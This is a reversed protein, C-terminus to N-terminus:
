PKRRLPTWGPPRFLYAAAESLSRAGRLDRALGPIESFWVEIPNVTDIPEKLGYRPTEEERQYTGFLRDWLM